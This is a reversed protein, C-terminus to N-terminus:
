NVECDFTATVQHESGDQLNDCAMGFLEIVQNNPDTYDWGNAKDKPVEKGDIYITVEDPYEPPAALKIECSIVSVAIKKIANLLSMQDTVAYYDTQSGM